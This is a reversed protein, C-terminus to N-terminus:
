KILNYIKESMNSGILKCEGNCNINAIEVALALEDVFNNNLTNGKFEKQNNDFKKALEKGIEKAKVKDNKAILQGFAFDDVEFKNQSLRTKLLSYDNAYIQPSACYLNSEHKLRIEGTKCREAVGDKIKSNSTANASAVIILITTIMAFGLVINKFKM